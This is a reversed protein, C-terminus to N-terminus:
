MRKISVPRQSPRTGTETMRKPPLHICILTRGTLIVDGGAGRASFGGATIIEGNIVEVRNPRRYLVM